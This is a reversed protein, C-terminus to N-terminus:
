SIHGSQEMLAIELTSGLCKEGNPGALVFQLGDYGVSWGGTFMETLQEYFEIVQEAEKWSYVRRM